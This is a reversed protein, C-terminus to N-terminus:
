HFESLSSVLTLFNVFTRADNQAIAIIKLTKEAVTAASSSVEESCVVASVTTSSFSSGLTGSAGSEAAGSSTCSLCASSCSFSCSASFGASFAGSCPESCPESCGAAFDPLTEPSEPSSSDSTILRGKTGAFFAGLVTRVAGATASGNAFPWIVCVSMLRLSPLSGTFAPVYVRPSFTVTVAPALTSVFSAEM